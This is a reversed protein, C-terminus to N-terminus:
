ILFIWGASYTQGILWKLGCIASVRWRPQPM